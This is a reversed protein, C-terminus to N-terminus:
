LSKLGRSGGEPHRFLCQVVGLSAFYPKLLSTDFFSSSSSPTTLLGGGVLVGLSISSYQVGSRIFSAFGTGMGDGGCFSQNKKAEPHSPLV